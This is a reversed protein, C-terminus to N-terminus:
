IFELFIWPDGFAHTSVSCFAIYHGFFNVIRRSESLVNKNYYIFFNHSCTLNKLFCYFKSVICIWFCLAIFFLYVFDILTDNNVQLPMLIVLVKIVCHFYKPQSLNWLFVVHKRKNDEKQLDTLISSFYAVNVILSISEDVAVAEM